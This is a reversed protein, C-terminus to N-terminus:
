HYPSWRSRCLTPDDAADSTYLLCDVSHSQIMEIIPNKEDWTSATLFVRVAEEQPPGFYQKTLAKRGM